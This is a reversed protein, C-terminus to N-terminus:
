ILKGAFDLIQDATNHTLKSSSLVTRVMDIQEQSKPMFSKRVGLVVESKSVEMSFWGPPMVIASGNGLLTFLLSPIKYFEATKEAPLKGISFGVLEMSLKGNELDPRVSMHTLLFSQLDEFKAMFIKRCGHLQFRVGGFGCWDFGYFQKEPAMGWIWVGQSSMHKTLTDKNGADDIKNIDDDNLAQTLCDPVINQLVEATDSLDHYVCNARGSEKYRDSVTFDRKFEM